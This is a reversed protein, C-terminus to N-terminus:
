STPSFHTPWGYIFICRLFDMYFGQWRVSNCRWYYLICSYCPYIKHPSLLKVDYASTSWPNGGIALFTRFRTHACVVCVCTYPQSQTLKYVHNPETFALMMYSNLRTARRLTSTSSIVGNKPSQSAQLYHQKQNFSPIYIYLNIGFLPLLTQRTITTKLADSTAGFYTWIWSGVTFNYSTYKRCEVFRSETQTHPQTHIM